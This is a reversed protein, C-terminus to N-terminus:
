LLSPETVSWENSLRGGMWNWACWSSAHDGCDSGSLSQSKVVWTLRDDIHLNKGSLGLAETKSNGENVYYMM